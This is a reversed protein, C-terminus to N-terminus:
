DESTIWRQVGPEDLDGSVVHAQKVQFVEDRKINEVCLMSECTKATTDYGDWWKRLAYTELATEPTITLCGREDIEAKM